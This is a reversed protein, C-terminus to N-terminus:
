EFFVLEQKYKECLMQHIKRASAVGNEDTLLCVAGGNGGGTIKAGYIGPKNKSLEAIEDTRDSGLGCKSYSAHSHYMLEGMSKMISNREKAKAFENLSLLLTKFKHVRENEYIPHSVCQRIAYETEPNIATVSDLSHSFNELFNKGGITIPLHKSFTSEFEQASINCLYGKYPLQSFRQQLKAKLIEEGSVGLSNAIITYGMFAACRVDSYSSGSVSHRVGSDIGIFFIGEPISIPKEVLDPQCIIPLLKKPEGLYSALQDMLGCPAGVILNEVRQALKPLETGSFFVDFAESLAKLTAVEISASSSVGKGLPVESTINFDAGTFEIGKEKQLALACGLVYGIWGDSKLQKFKAKAFDYDVVNKKLFDRYDVNVSPIKDAGSISELSCQYDSRLTVKVVTKQSIPMQLVLSGSYDGIGGMVDLRGPASAFYNKLIPNTV